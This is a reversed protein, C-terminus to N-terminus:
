EWSCEILELDKPYTVKRNAPDGAITFVNGKYRNYIETDDVYFGGDSAAAEHAELIEPYKFGQPTQAAMVTGRKLHGTIFSSSDVMKMADRAHIVPVCAGFEVTKELVALIIEKSVWPRAGDHILVYRPKYSQLATLGLAVSKQRTEGGEVLLLTSYVPIGGLAALTPEKQNKCFTVVITPFVGTDIFPTVAMALLSAGNVTLYEKKVGNGMRSSTGAATIVVAAQRRRARRPLCARNFFSNQIM